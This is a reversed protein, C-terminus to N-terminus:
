IPFFVYPSGAGLGVSFVIRNMIMTLALLSESAPTIGSSFSRAAIPFNLSSSTFAPTISAPSPSCGLEFPARTRNEPAFRVTTSPGKASVLSSTAPKQIHCTFDFSSAISHTLRQGLGIRSSESISIRWTNSASSKPASNVGSSLSCSSRRRACIAAFFFLYRTAGSRLVAHSEHHYDLGRLVRFRAHHGGLLEHHLHLLVVLLQLFGPHQEVGRAQLRARLAPADLVRSRLAGHDVSREGFRLLEDGAVRDDLHLRPFFRHLPRPAKGIGGDVALFALDLDPLEELELIETRALRDLAKAFHLLVELLLLLFPSIITVLPMSWRFRQSASM